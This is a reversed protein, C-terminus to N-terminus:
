SNHPFFPFNQFLHSLAKKLNEWSFTAFTLEAEASTLPPTPTLTATPTATPSVSPTVKKKGIDSKAAQSVVQGGLHQHAVCSVYAGHNKWDANPDCEQAQISRGQVQKTKIKPTPTLTPTTEIENELDNEEEDSEGQVEGRKEESIQIGNNQKAQDSNSKGPTAYVPSVLLLLAVAVLSLEKKMDAIYLAAPFFINCIVKLNTRNILLKSIWESNIPHQYSNANQFRFPVIFAKMSFSAFSM